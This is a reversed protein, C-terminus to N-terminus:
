QSTCLLQADWDGMAPRSIVNAIILVVAERCLSGVVNPWHPLWIYGPGLGSQNWWFLSPGASAQPDYRQPITRETLM